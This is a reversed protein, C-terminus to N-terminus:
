QGKILNLKHIQKSELFYNMVIYVLLIVISIIYDFIDIKYEIFFYKLMIENIVQEQHIMFFYILATSIIFSVLNVFMQYKVKSGYLKLLALESNFNSYFQILIIYMAIFLISLIFITVAMVSSDFLFKKPGISPIIDEQVLITYNKDYKDIINKLKKISSSNQITSGYIDIYNNKDKINLSDKLVNQNLMIINKDYKKEPNYEVTSRINIMLEDDNAKINFNDLVGFNNLDQALFTSSIALNGMENSFILDILDTLENLYVLQKDQKDDEDDNAFTHIKLKLIMRKYNIFDKLIKSLFLKYNKSMSKDQYFNIILEGDEIDFSEIDNNSIEIDNYQLSINDAKEINPSKLILSKYALDSYIIKTSSVKGDLEVKIDADKADVLKELLKDFKDKCPKVKLFLIDDNITLDYCFNYQIAKNLSLFLVSNKDKIKLGNLKLEIFLNDQYSINLVELKINENDINMSIKNDFRMGKIFLNLGDTLLLDESDVISVKQVFEYGTLLDIQEDKFEARIDSILKDSKNDSLDNLQIKVDPINGYDSRLYDYFVSKVGIGVMFIVILSSFTISVLLINSIRQKLIFYIVDLKKM